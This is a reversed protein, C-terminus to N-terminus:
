RMLEDLTLPKEDPHQRNWEDITAQVEARIGAAQDLQGTARAKMQWPELHDLDPRNDTTM